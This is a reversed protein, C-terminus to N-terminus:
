QALLKAKQTDFEAPTIVGDDRLKAFKALEDALSSPATAVPAASAVHPADPWVPVGVEPRMKTPVTVTMRQSGRYVEVPFSALKSAKALGDWLDDVKKIREGDLRTVVDGVHLGAVEASSGAEVSTIKAGTQPMSAAELGVGLVAHNPFITGQPYQGGSGVLLNMASNHFAVDTFDTRRVQGFAMQLEMWGSLQVRSHGQFDAINFRFFRRPPTSYSNGMLLQGALSQGFNMPAECIVVTPTSSQVTWSRNICVNALASSTAEPMGPFLAEAAGSPTMAIIQDAKAMTPSLLVAAVAVGLSIRMHGRLSLAREHQAAHM